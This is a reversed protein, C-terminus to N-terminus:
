VANFQIYLVADLDLTNTPTLGATTTYSLGLTDGAAFAVAGPRVTAYSATTNTATDMAPAPYGTEAFETSAKHAKVTVLGGTVAANVRAGIGIVSGAYPAVILTGGGALALDTCTQATVINATAFPIGVIAGFKGADFYDAM